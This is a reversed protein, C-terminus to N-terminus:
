DYLRKPQYTGKKPKGARYQSNRLKKIDINPYLNWRGSKFYLGDYTGDPAYFEFRNKYVPSPPSLFDYIIMKLSEDYTLSMVAMHNYEFILRKSRTKGTKFIAKGFKPKGNGTFYLVDVIKKASLNNNGDWGLLTYYKKGAYRIDIIKYYLCGFWNTDSLSLQVPNVCGASKDHLFSTYLQKKKKNYCQSYGFYKHEGNEYKLNWTYIKVLGDVSHIIGAHKLSDFNYSFSAPDELIDSFIKIIERNISDKEVDTKIYKVGDFTFAEDFLELLRTEKAMISSFDSTKQATAMFPMLMTFLLNV